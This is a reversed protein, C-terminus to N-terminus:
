RTFPHKTVAAGAPIKFDFTAASPRAFSVQSFGVSLAPTSSSGFVQVRLPVYKASDIAVTIRNITSRADRPAIVLTYAPRGAVTVSPGGTVSTTPSLATLVKAVVAAPTM